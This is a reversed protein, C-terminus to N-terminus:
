TADLRKHMVLHVVDITRGGVSFPVTREGVPEYGRRAYMAAAPSGPEVEVEAVSAGHQEKLRLEAHDMLWRGIGHGRMFDFVRVAWITAIRVRPIRRLDLWAQGVPFRGLVGLLMEVQGREQAAYTERILARDASHRGYWELADLDEERALRLEVLVRLEKRALVTM